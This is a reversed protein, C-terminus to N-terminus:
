KTPEQASASQAIPETTLFRLVFNVGAVLSMAGLYSKPGLTAQLLGFNAEFVVGVAVFTNLWLTKSKWWQKHARKM